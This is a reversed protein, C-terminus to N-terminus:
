PKHLFQRPHRPNRLYPAILKEKRGMQTIRTM